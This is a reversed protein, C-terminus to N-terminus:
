DLARDTAALRTLAPPPDFRPGYRGALDRARASFAAPGKENIWGKITGIGVLAGAEALPEGGGDGAAPLAAADGDIARLLALAIAFRLRDDIEAGDLSQGGRAFVSLGSWLPAKGAGGADYFGAMGGGSRKFGHAMKELVYVAPAPM